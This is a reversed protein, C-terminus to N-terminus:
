CPLHPTKGDFKTSSRRDDTACGVVAVVVVETVGAEMGSVALSSLEDVLLLLTM